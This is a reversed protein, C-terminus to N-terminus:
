GVHRLRDGNAQSTHELACVGRIHQARADTM